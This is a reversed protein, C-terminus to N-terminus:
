CQVVLSTGQPERGYGELNQFREHEPGTPLPLSNQVMVPAGM